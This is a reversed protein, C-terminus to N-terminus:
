LCPALASSQAKYRGSANPQRAAAITPPHIRFGTPPADGRKASCDARPAARVRGQPAASAVLAILVTLTALAALVAIADSPNVGPPLWRTVDLDQPQISKM